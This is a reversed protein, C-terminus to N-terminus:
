AVCCDSRGTAYARDRETDADCRHSEETAFNALQARRVRPVRQIEEAGRISCAPARGVAAPESIRQGRQQDGALGM